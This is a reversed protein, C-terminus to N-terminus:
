RSQSLRQPKKCVAAGPSFSYGQALHKVFLGVLLLLLGSSIYGVGRVFFEFSYSFILVQAFFKFFFARDEVANDRSWNTRAFRPIGRVIELMASGALAVFTASLLIGLFGLEAVLKSFVFAGDGLNKFVGTIRFIEYGYQGPPLQGMQMFGAGYGFTSINADYARELGQLYVLSTINGSSLKARAQHYEPLLGIISDFFLVMLLSSSVLAAILIYRRSGRFATMVLITLGVLGLTLNPLALSAILLTIAIAFSRAYSSACSSILFLPATFVAFHSPEAFPFVSAPFKAYNQFEPRAYFSFLLLGLSLTFMVNVSSLIAKPGYSILIPAVKYATLGFIGLTALTAISEFSWGTAVDIAMRLSLVLLLLYMALQRMGVKTTPMNPTKRMQALVLIGLSSLALPASLSTLSM